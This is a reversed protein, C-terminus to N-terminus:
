NIESGYLKKFRLRYGAAGHVDVMALQFGSAQGPGIRDREVMATETRLTHRDGDLLDVVAQVHTLANATRNVLAGTVVVYGAHRVVKPAAVSVSVGAPLAELRLAPQSPDSLFIRSVGVVSLVLLACSVSTLVVLRVFYRRLSRASSAAQEDAQVQTWHIAAM